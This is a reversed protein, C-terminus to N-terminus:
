SLSFTLGDLVIINAGGFSTILSLNGASSIAGSVPTNANGFSDITSQNFVLLPETPRSGAPLVAFTTGPPQTAPPGGVSPVSIAGKLRVIEGQLRCSPTYYGAAATCSNQLTLAVWGTDRVSGPKLLWNVGDSVLEVSAGPTGLVFSAVGASGFGAGYIVGSGSGYAITVPSAATVGANAVVAVQSNLSPKPLTLTIGAAAIYGTRYAMVVSTPAAVYQFSSPSIKSQALRTSQLINGSSLSTAGAPVLVYAILESNAPLSSPAGALNVLTAGGTPTGTVWECQAFSNGSLIQETIDYVRMVIANIQPNSVPASITNAPNVAADNRTYYLGEDATPESAAVSQQVYCDGASINVQLGSAPTVLLDTLINGVGPGLMSLYQRRLLWAPYSQDQAFLPISITM